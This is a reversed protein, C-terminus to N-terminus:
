AITKISKEGSFSVRKKGEQRTAEVEMQHSNNARFRANKAIKRGM